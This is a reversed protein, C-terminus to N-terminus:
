CRRQWCLLIDSVLIMGSYRQMASSHAIEVTTRGHENQAPMTEAPLVVLRMRSARLWPSHVLSYGGNRASMTLTKTQWSMWLAGAIRGEFLLQLTRLRKIPRRRCLRLFLIVLSATKALHRRILSPVEILPHLAVGELWRLLWKIQSPYLIWSLFNRYVIRPMNLVPHQKV